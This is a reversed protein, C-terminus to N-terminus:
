SGAVTVPVIPYDSETPEGADSSRCVAGVEHAGAPTGTPFSVTVSWDGDQDATGVALDGAVEAEDTLVVVHAPHAGDRARCGTGSVTFPNGAVVLQPATPVPAPTAGGPAASATTTLALVALATAVALGTAGAVRPRNLHTM